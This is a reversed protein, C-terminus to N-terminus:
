RRVKGKGGEKRAEGKEDNRIRPMFRIIASMFRMLTTMVRINRGNLAYEERAEHDLVAGDLDDGFGGTGGGRTSLPCAADRV